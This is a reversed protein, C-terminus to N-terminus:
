EGVYKRLAVVLLDFRMSDTCYKGTPSVHYIRLLEHYLIRGVMEAVSVNEEVDLMLESLSYSFLLNPDISSELLSLLQNSIIDHDSNNASETYSYEYISGSIVFSERVCGLGKFNSRYFVARKVRICWSTLSQIM